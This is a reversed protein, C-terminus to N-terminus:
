SEDALALVRERVEESIWMGSARLHDILPAVSDTLGRTKAELLIKEPVLVQDFLRPLWELTNIRYLYLLPSTNCVADPM